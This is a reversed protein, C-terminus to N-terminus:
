GPFSEPMLAFYRASRGLARFGLSGPIGILGPYTGTSIASTALQSIALNVDGYNGDSPNLCTIAQVNYQLLNHELQNFGDILIETKTLIPNGEDVRNNM